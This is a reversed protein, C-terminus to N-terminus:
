GPWSRPTRAPSRSSRGPARDVRPRLRRERAGRRSGRRRRPWARVAAAALAGVGIPIVALDARAGGSQEDVERSSRRTARSSGARCTRTAPGPRTPSCSGRPAPSRPAARVADDYTGDVVEVRAGESAIADIRAAATGAPCSSPPAAPRCGRSARSRAATTATPRRRRARAGPRVAARRAPPARGVVRRPVQVGAPRLARARVEAPRPRRGVRRRTPRTSSRRRPM